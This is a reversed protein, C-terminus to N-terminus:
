QWTMTRVDLVAYNGREGNMNMGTVEVSGWGWDYTRSYARHLHGHILWGPQVADVIRQLRRQHRAARELDGPHFHPGLHHDFSHQVRAPYDHTVMVDAHGHGIIAAEQEDTIEEQPWWSEHEVRAPPPLLRDVSVAGGASLWTRGHWTWRHGRPLVHIRNLRGYPTDPMFAAYPPYGPEAWGEMADYDDHNGPTVLIHADALELASQVDLLYQLGAPKRDGESWDRVKYPWFGFDGCHVIVRLQEDALLRGADWIAGVAWRGDGHWDGAVVVKCPQRMISSAGALRRELEQRAEPTLPEM